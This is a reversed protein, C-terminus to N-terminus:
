RAIKEEVALPLVGGHIRDSALEEILEAHIRREQTAYGYVLASECLINILRPVGQTHRYIRDVAAAEFLHPEKAGAVALRHVIYTKTEERTLAELHYDVVVRQALQEMEPQRLTQRLGPQGVLVIQLLQATANLNSLTRLQELAESTLNQAEDVILLARRGHQGEDHLFRSLSRYLDIQSRAGGELGFALAVWELLPGFGAHTNALLGVSVDPGLHTILYRILTTKGTGIRGTVVVFGAQQLLGYELLGYAIRHHRSFYLFEPNPLISFPCERLGYFSEYM